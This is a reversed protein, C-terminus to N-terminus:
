DPTGSLKCFHSGRIRVLNNLTYKGRFQSNPEAKDFSRFKPPPHQVGLSGKERYAVPQFMNSNYFCKLMGIFSVRTTNSPALRVTNIACVVSHGCKFKFMLNSSSNPTAAVEPLTWNRHTCSLCIYWKNLPNTKLISRCTEANLFAMMLSDSIFM